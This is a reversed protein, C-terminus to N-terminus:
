SNIDLHPACACNSWYGSKGWNFHTSYRPGDVSTKAKMQPGPQGPSSHHISFDGEEYFDNPSGSNVGPLGSQGLPRVASAVAAAAVVVVLLLWSWSLSLSSSSSLLLLLLLLLLLFLLFFLLLWL